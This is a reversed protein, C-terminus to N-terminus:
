PRPLWDRAQESLAALRRRYGPYDRVYDAVREPDLAEAPLPAGLRALRDAAAPLGMGWVAAALEVLDGCRGCDPCCFWAGGCATDDYAHVRRRGCLPCPTRAPLAGHAVGLRLLAARPPWPR